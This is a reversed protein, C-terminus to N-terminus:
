GRVVGKDNRKGCVSQRGEAGEDVGTGLVAKEVFSGCFAITERLGLKRAFETKSQEISGETTVDSM